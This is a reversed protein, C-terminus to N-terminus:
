TKVEKDPGLQIPSLSQIDQIEGADFSLGSMGRLLKTGFSTALEVVKLSFFQWTKTKKKTYTHTFTCTHKGM